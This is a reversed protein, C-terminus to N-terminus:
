KIKTGAAGTDASGADASSNAGGHAISGAGGEAISGTGSQAISGTDSQAIGGADVGAVAGGPGGAPPAVAVTAGSAETATAPSLLARTEFLQDSSVVQTTQPTLALPYGQILKDEALVEPPKPSDYKIPTPKGSLLEDRFAAANQTVAAIRLKSPDLHARLAANVQDATIAPLKERFSKLFDDTGYFQDDLAFGLRRSDAAQWSLTYTKLFAKTREVEEASLGEKLVRGIEFLAARLAFGRNQSQVPRIWVSFYQQRRCENPDPYTEDGEVFHELYSYDGYNLGRLERLRHFLIGSQQRHEGLASNGVWLAAFDDATRHVDYTYGLSFGTSETLKDVLLATIGDDEPAPLPPSRGEGLCRASRRPWRIPWRAARRSRGILGVVLRDRTFRTKWQNKVDELTIARLGSATGEVPFGYPHGDYLLAQLAAKGLEEDDNHRLRVTLDDLADGRLRELEKPDFRPHAIADTLLPLFKELLDEHVRGVFVTSEASSEASLEAALPFLAAQFAAASLAETGGEVM